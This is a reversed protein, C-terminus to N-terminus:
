KKFGTPIHGADSKNKVAQELFDSETSFGENRNKNSGTTSDRTDHGAACYFIFTFPAHGYNCRCENRATGKMANIEPLMNPPFGQTLVLAYKIPSAEMTRDPMIRFLNLINLPFFEGKTM